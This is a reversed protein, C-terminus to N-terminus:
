SSVVRGDVLRLQREARGALEANHTVYLVTLRRQRWRSFLVEMVPEAGARDLEGTAEDALLLDPDNVLAVAVAVRQAEGGSLESPRHDLRDGLGLACLLEIAEEGSPGHPSLESAFEVNERARLFPILNGRQLVM